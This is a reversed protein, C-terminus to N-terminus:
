LQLFGSSQGVSSESRNKAQVALVNWLKWLALRLGGASFEGVHALEGAATKELGGGNGRGGGLERWREEGVGKAPQGILIGEVSSVKAEGWPFLCRRVTCAVIDFADLM